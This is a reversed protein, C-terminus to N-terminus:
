GSGILGFTAEEVGQDDWYQGVGAEGVGVGGSDFASHVGCAIVHKSISEVNADLPFRFVSIDMNVVFSEVLPERREWGNECKLKQLAPTVPDAIDEKAVTIVGNNSNERAVHQGFVSARSSTAIGAFCDFISGPHRDCISKLSGQIAWPPAPQTSSSGPSCFFAHVIGPNQFATKM